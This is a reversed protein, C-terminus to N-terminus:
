SLFVNNYVSDFFIRKNEKDLYSIFSIINRDYYIFKNWLHMAMDHEYMEQLKELNLNNQISLLIKYSEEINQM